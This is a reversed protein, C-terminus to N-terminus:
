RFRHLTHAWLWKVPHASVDAHRVKGGGLYGARPGCMNHRALVSPQGVVGRIGHFLYAM